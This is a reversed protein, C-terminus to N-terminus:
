AASLDKLKEAIAFQLTVVAFLGILLCFFVFGRGDGGRSQSAVMGMCISLCAQIGFALPVAGWRVWLSLFATLHLFVLVYVVAFSFALLSDGDSFIEDTFDSVSDPYLITGIFFFFVTPGLSLLQGLIKPFVITLISERPLMVLSSLTNAKIEVQFVRGAILALELIGSVIAVVQMTAGLDRADFDNLGASGFSNSMLVVFLTVLVPLVFLRIFAGKWGGAHFHFDKWVLAASWVRGKLSFRRSSKQHASAVSTGVRDAFVPFLLWALLFAGVGVAVNVVVQRSIVSGSFNVDMIANLQEPIMVRKVQASLDDILAFTPQNFVASAVESLLYPGLILCLTLLLTWFSARWTTGCMVSALLGIGAVLVLFAGLAVYSAVIQLPTVGGLTVALFVLPLQVALLVGCSVLRPVSKGLLLTLPNIGAMQLLPLTGEEKEETVTSAFLGCGALMIFLLNLWAMLVFLDLGPASLIDVDSLKWLGAFATTLLLGLHTVHPVMARANIRLTQRVLALAGNFM